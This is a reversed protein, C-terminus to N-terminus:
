QLGGQDRLTKFMIIEKNVIDEVAQSTRSAGTVADVQSNDPDSDGKGTGQRLRIGEPAIKEGRFQDKFWGEDIRGGLGPTENHAVIQFGVIREVQQDVAVIAQITGWLGPGAVRAAYRVQGDVMTKYLPGAETSLTSVQADYLSDVESQATYSIGLATLIASREALRRNAAVRDKTVENALALFFVFVICIIFTFLVTYLMGDRKM